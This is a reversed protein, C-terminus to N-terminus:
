PPSPSPPSPSSAVGAAAEEEPEKVGGGTGRSTAACVVLAAGTGIAALDKDPELTVGAAGERLLPLWLSSTSGGTEGRCAGTAPPTASSGTRGPAPPGGARICPRAAELVVELAVGGTTRLACLVSLDEEEIEDLVNCRGFAREMPRCAPRLTCCSAVNRPLSGGIGGTDPCDGHDGRMVSFFPPPDRSETCLRGGGATGRSSSVTSTVTFWEKAAGTECRSLWPGGGGLGSWGGGGRRELM